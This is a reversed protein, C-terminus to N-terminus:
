YCIKSLETPQEKEKFFYAENKGKVIHGRKQNIISVLKKVIM